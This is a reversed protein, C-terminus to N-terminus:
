EKEGKIIKCFFYIIRHFERVSMYPFYKEYVYKCNCANPRISYISCRNDVNLFKCIGDGRDFGLLQPIRNVHKCCEGCCDCPFPYYKQVIM